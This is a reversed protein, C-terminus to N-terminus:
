ETAREAQLAENCAGLSESWVIGFHSLTQCCECIYHLVCRIHRVTTTDELGSLLSWKTPWIQVAARCPQHLAPDTSM